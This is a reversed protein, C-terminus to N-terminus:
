YKSITLLYAYLDTTSELGMKACIRQKRKTSAPLSINLLTAIESVSLQLFVLSIYRLDNQNLSPHKDLLKAFLEPNTQRTHKLFSDMNDSDDSISKMKALFMKNSTVDGKTSLYDTVEKMLHDRSALSLEHCKLQEIYEDVKNKLESHEQQTKNLEEQMKMLELEASLKEMKRKRNLFVYAIILALISSLGILLWIKINLTTIKAEEEKKLLSFRLNSNRHYSSQSFSYISDMMMLASDRYAIAEKYGGTNEYVKSYDLYLLHRCLPDSFINAKNLYDLAVKRNGKNAEILALKRLVETHLSTNNSTLLLLSDYITIAKDVEGRSYLISAQMNRLARYTDTKQSLKPNNLVSDILCLAKFPNGLSIEISAINRSAIAVMSSDNLNTAIHLLQQFISLARKNDGKMNIIVGKNNLAEMMLLSDNDKQALAHIEETIQMAEEFDDIYAYLIALLNLCRKYEEKFGYRHADERAKSLIDFSALINKAEQAKDASDILNKVEALKHDKYSWGKGCGGFCTCAILVLSLIMYPLFRYKNSSSLNMLSMSLNRNSHLITTCFYLINEM